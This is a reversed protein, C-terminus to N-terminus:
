TIREVDKKKEELNNEWKLNQSGSIEKFFGQKPFCTQFTVKQLIFLLITLFCFLRFMKLGVENKQKKKNKGFLTEAISCSLQNWTTWDKFRSRILLWNQQCQKKQVGSAQSVLNQKSSEEKNSFFWYKTQKGSFFWFKSKPKSFFFKGISIWSFKSFIGKFKAFKKLFSFNM